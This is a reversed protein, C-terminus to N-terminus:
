RNLLFQPVTDLIAIQVYECDNPMELKDCLAIWYEPEKFDEKSLILTQMKVGM